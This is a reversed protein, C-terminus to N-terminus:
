YWYARLFDAENTIPLNVDSMNHEVRGLGEKCPLQKWTHKTVKLTKMGAIFEKPTKAMKKHYVVADKILNLYGDESSENGYVIRFISM